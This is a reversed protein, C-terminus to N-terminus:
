APGGRKNGPKGLAEQIFRPLLPLALAVSWVMFTGLGVCVGLIVPLALAQGFLMVRQNEAGLGTLMLALSVM